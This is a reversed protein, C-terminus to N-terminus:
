EVKESIVFDIITKKVFITKILVIACWKLEVQRIRIYEMDNNSIDSEIQPFDDTLIKINDKNWSIALTINWM